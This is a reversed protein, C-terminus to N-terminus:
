FGEKFWAITNKPEEIREGNLYWEKYGCSFEVAPGDIRHCMGNLYWEKTGNNEVAPGDTRHRKGNFWWEKIAFIQHQNDPREIAPGDTRHLL